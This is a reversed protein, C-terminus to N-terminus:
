NSSTVARYGVGILNLEKVFGTSVGKMMNRVLAWTTGFMPTIGKSVSPTLQIIGDEVKLEVDEHISIKMEGKPGKASFDRNSYQVQVGEVVAIPRKGIRSM